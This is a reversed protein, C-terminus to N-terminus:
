IFLLLMNGTTGSLIATALGAIPQANISYDLTNSSLSKTELIVAPTAGLSYDLTQVSDRSPLSM